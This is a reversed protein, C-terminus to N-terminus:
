AAEGTAIERTVAEGAAEGVICSLVAAFHEVVYQEVAICLVEEIVAEGTNDQVVAPFQEVTVAERAISPLVAATVGAVPLIM